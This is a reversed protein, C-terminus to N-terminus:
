RDRLADRLADKTELTLIRRDHNWLAAAAVIIAANSTIDLAEKILDFVAKGKQWPTFGRWVRCM